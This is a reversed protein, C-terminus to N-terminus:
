CPMTDLLVPAVGPLYPLPSETKTFASFVAALPLPGVGTALAKAGYLAGQALNPM